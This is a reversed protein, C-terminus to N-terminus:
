DVRERQGADVSVNLPLKPEAAGLAGCVLVFCMGALRIVCRGLMPQEERFCLLASICVVTTLQTIFSLFVSGSIYTTLSTVRQADPGAAFTRGQREARCM